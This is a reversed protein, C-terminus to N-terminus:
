NDAGTDLQRYTLTHYIGPALVPGSDSRDRRVQARTPLQKETAPGQGIIMCVGLEPEFFARGILDSGDDRPHPCAKTPPYALTADPALLIDDPTGDHLILWVTNTIRPASTHPVWVEFARLHEMAPGLYVAEM